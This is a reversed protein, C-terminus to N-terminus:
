FDGAAVQWCELGLERWRDVVQKRDDVALRVFHTPLIKERLIEEKVDADKRKDGTSRMYLAAYPVEYMKLWDETESRCSDDRGSVVIIELALQSFFQIAQLVNWNPADEIVRTYDYPNRDGKLALTGDIDVIIAPINDLDQEVPRTVLLFERRMRRIVGEGVSRPRELDRKICEEVPVDTFDQIVFEAGYQEALERLRREHSPHLNTDDSIVSLGRGLADCILTDRIEVTIRENAKTWIGGHYMERILDKNVRAYKGRYRSLLGLAFTSKGSAPLGRTMILKV